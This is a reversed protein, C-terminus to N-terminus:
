HDADCGGDRARWGSDLLAWLGGSVLSHGGLVVPISAELAARTLARVYSDTIESHQGLDSLYRDRASVAIGASAFLPRTDLFAAHVVGGLLSFFEKFDFRSLLSGLITTVSGSQVRGQAKMGREESFFRIRSAADKDLVSLLLSGARGYVFVELGPDLLAQRAESVPLLCRLSSAAARAGVPAEPHMALIVADIPTDVDFILGLSRPVEALPLGSEHLLYALRNDSEPPPFTMLAEAPSFGVCDSSFLNNTALVRHSGAVCTALTELEEPGALPLAGAGVYLLRELKFRHILFRLTEGFHFPATDTLVTEVSLESLERAFEPDDVAAIIRDISPLLAAREVHTRLIARKVRGLNQEVPETGGGGHMLLLPCARNNPSTAPSM